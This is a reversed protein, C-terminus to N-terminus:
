YALVIGFGVYAVVLGALGGAVLATAERDKPLWNASLKRVLLGALAGLALFFPSLMCVVLLLVEGIGPDGNTKDSVGQFYIVAAAIVVVAAAKIASLVPNKGFSPESISPKDM